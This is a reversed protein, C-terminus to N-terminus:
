FCMDEIVSQWSNSFRQYRGSLIEGFVHKTRALGHASHAMARRSLHQLKEEILDMHRSPPAIGAAVALLLRSKLEKIAEVRSIHLGLEQKRIWRIKQVIPKPLIGMQQEAHQRYQVLREPIPVGYFGLSSALLAIWNDHVFCASIPLVLSRLEARFAMTAGTVVNRKLLVSVQEPARFGSRLSGHFHVAEWATKSLIGDREDVLEADCFVYGANPNKRFAESMKELKERHWVDDQDALAIVAGSCFRIAQEFNKSSKLNRENIKFRVPFPASQAFCKIMQATADTSRDDCVVLEDPLRTQAAISQLQEPLFRAGNYTCLAVSLTHM